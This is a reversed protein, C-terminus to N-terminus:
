FVVSLKTPIQKCPLGEAASVELNIDNRIRKSDTADSDDNDNNRDRERRRQRDRERMQSNLLYQAKFDYNVTSNENSNKNLPHM